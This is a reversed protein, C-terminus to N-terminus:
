DEFRQWAFLVADDDTEVEILGNDIIMRLDIETVSGERLRVLETESFEWLVGAREVLRIGSVQFPENPSWSEPLEPFPRTDKSMGIEAPLFDVVSFLHRFEWTRHLVGGLPMLSRLLEILHHGKITLPYKM